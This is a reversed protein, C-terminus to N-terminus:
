KIGLLALVLPVVTLVKDVEAPLAVGNAKLIAVVKEAFLEWDKVSKAQIDGNVDILGSAQAAKVVDAQVVVYQVITM